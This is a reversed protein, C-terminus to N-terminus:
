KTKRVKSLSLTFRQQTILDRFKFGRKDFVNIVNKMRIGDYTRGDIYPRMAIVSDLKEKNYQKVVLNGVGSTPDAQWLTYIEDPSGFDVIIAPKYLKGGYLLSRDFAITNTFTSANPMLVDGVTDKRRERYAKTDPLYDLVAKKSALHYRGFRTPIFNFMNMVDGLTETYNCIFVIRLKEKTDRVYNELTNVLSYQIDFRVPENKDRICEDFVINYGKKWECDFTATGKKNYFTSIGSVEALKVLTGDVQKDFVEPGKVVLNLNYKRRLDADVFKAANNQLM